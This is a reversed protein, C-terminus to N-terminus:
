RCSATVHSLIQGASEKPLKYDATCQDTTQSGWKVSVQGSLPMGSLYVQGNEGAISSGGNRATVVSGFPVAKGNRTLTMLVKVGVRTKYDARVVAGHTPVVSVVTNEIDVNDALTNTDLAVRNERYDTAYPL